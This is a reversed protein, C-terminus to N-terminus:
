ENDHENLLEYHPVTDISFVEIAPWKYGCCGGDYVGGEFLTGIVYYYRVIGPQVLSSFEEPVSIFLQGDHSLDEIHMGCDSERVGDEGFQFNTEVNYGAVALTDGLHEERSARYCRFNDNVQKVSNYDDWVVEKEGPAYDACEHKKVCSAALLAILFIIILRRM